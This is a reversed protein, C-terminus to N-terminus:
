SYFSYIFCTFLCYNFSYTIRHVVGTERFLIVYWVSRRSLLTVFPSRTCYTLVIEENPVSLCLYKLPKYSFIHESNNKTVTKLGEM